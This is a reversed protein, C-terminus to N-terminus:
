VVIRKGVTEHAADRFEFGWVYAATPCQTACARYLQSNTPERLLVLLLLALYNTGIKECFILLENVSKSACTSGDQYNRSYQSRTPSVSLLNFASPM